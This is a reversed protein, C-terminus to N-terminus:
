FQYTYIPGLSFFLSVKLVPTNYLSEPITKAVVSQSNHLCHIAALSDDLHYQLIPHAVLTCYSSVRRVDMVHNM